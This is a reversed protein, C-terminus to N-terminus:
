FEVICLVRFNWFNVVRTYVLDANDTNSSSRMSFAPRCFFTSSSLSSSEARVTGVLSRAVFCRRERSDRLTHMKERDHYGWADGCTAAASAAAEADPEEDDCDPSGDNATAPTCPSYARISPSARWFSLCCFPRSLRSASSHVRRLCCSASASPARCDAWSWTSSRGWSRKSCRERRMRERMRHRYEIRIRRAGPGRWCNLPRMKREFLMVFMRIIRLFHRNRFPVRARARSRYHSSISLFSSLRHDTLVVTQMGVMEVAWRIPYYVFSDWTWNPHTLISQYAAHLPLLCALLHVHVLLAHRRQLALQVHQRALLERGVLLDSRHALLQAVLAGFQRYSCWYKTTQVDFESALLRCSAKPLEKQRQEHEIWRNTMDEHVLLLEKSAYSQTVCMHAKHMTVASQQSIFSPRAPPCSSAATPSAARGRARWSPCPAWTAPSRADRARGRRTACRWQM